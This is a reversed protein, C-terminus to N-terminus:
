GLYEMGNPKPYRPFADSSVCWYMTCYSPSDLESEEGDVDQWTDRRIFPSFQIFIQIEDFNAAINAAVSM